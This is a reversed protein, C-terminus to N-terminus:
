ILLDSLLLEFAAWTPAIEIAHEAGGLMPIMVVSGTLSICFMEHGGDGAFAYFGPNFKAVVENCSELEDLPTFEYDV